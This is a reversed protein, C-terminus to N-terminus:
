LDICGNVISLGTIRDKQNAHGNCRVNFFIPRGHGFCGVAVPADSTADHRQRHHSHAHPAQQGADDPDSAQALRKSM